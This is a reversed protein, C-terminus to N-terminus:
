QCLQQAHHSAVVYSYAQLPPFGAPKKCLLGEPQPGTRCFIESRLPCHQKDSGAETKSNYTCAHRCDL